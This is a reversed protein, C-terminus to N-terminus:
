KKRRTEWREVPQEGADAMLFDIADLILTQMSVDRDIAMKRLRRHDPPLLYLTTATARGKLSGDANPLGPDPATQEHLFAPRTATGPATRLDDLDLDAPLVAMPPKRAM